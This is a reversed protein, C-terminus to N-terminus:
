KFAELNNNVSYDWVNDGLSIKIGSVLSDEKKYELSLNRKEKREFSSKVANLYKSDLEHASEILLTNKKEFQVLKELLARLIFQANKLKSKKIENIFAKMKVTDLKGSKTSDEVLIKAIKEEKKSYRM